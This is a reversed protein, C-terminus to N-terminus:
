EVSRMALRDRCLAEGQRACRMLREHAAVDVVFGEDRRGDTLRDKRRFEVEVGGSGHPFVSEPGHEVIRRGLEVLLAELEGAGMERSLKM